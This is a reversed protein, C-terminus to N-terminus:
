LGQVFAKVADLTKHIWGLFTPPYITQWGLGACVWARGWRDVLVDGISMSTHSIGRGVLHEQEEHSPSWVEGQQMRYVQELHHAEVERILSHTEGPVFAYDDDVDFYPLTKAYFVKYKM